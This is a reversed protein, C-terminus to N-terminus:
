VSRIKEEKQRLIKAEELALEHTPSAINAEKEYLRKNDKWVTICGIYHIGLEATNKLRTHVTIM